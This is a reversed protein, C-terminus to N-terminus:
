AVGLGERVSPDKHNTRFIHIKLRRPVTSHELRRVRKDRKTEAHVLTCKPEFHFRARAPLVMELRHVSLCGICPGAYSAKGLGRDIPILSVLASQARYIASM